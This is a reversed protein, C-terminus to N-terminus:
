EAPPAEPASEVAPSDAPPEEPPTETIEETDDPPPTEGGADSVTPPPPASSVSAAAALAALADGDACFETGDSKAVCIQKTHVEGAFFKGIGNASDSFWITLRSFLNGFFADAFSQAQPTTTAPAFAIAEM